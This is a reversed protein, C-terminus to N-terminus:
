GGPANQQPTIGITAHIPSAEHIIRPRVQHRDGVPQASPVEADRGSDDIQTVASVKATSASAPVTCSVVGSCSSSGGSAATGLRSPVSIVRSCRARCVEPSGRDGNENQCSMLITSNWRPFGYAMSSAATSAENLPM